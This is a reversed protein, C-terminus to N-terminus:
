GVTNNVVEEALGFSLTMGAGGLGNVVTVGKEPSVIYKVGESYKAYVGNWRETIRYPGADLFADLYRLILDNVSESDFPEPTHGYHHSDGIILERQNNQSVLVHVGNRAFEPDTADYRANVKALSPCTAFARYHRLTLGASLSTGLDVPQSLVAKMMQLKCRTLSDSQFYSPYLTEFDAGSCVFVKQVNWTELNTELVPLRIEKVTQRFRRILGFKEELWLPIRRVAERSYVVCETASSMAGVLGERRVYPCAREVQHAALIGTQYYQGSTEQFENLVDFEDRHYALQLSGNQNLWIGAERAIDIWVERSRLAYNLGDGPTQGIPWIMGFNRVSAGVAFDEREFLVVRLNKKLAMYAHALGIIGGGVVAVDASKDM